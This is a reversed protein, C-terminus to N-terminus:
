LHHALHAGASEVVVLLVDMQNNFNLPHKAVLQQLAPDLFFFRSFVHVPAHALFVTKYKSIIFYFYAHGEPGAGVEM